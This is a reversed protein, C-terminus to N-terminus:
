RLLLQDLEVKDNRCINLINEARGRNYLKTKGGFLVVVSYLPNDLCFLKLM